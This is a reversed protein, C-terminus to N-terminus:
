HEGPVVSSDDLLPVWTQLLKYLQEHSKNVTDIVMEVTTPQIRDLPYCVNSVISLAAVKLGIHRAALVEPVTSMGVLDAGIIRCFNYEAPTELNPGPLAIYVGQHLKINLQDAALIAANRWSPEYANMMDPFRPGFRPDNPGNLPNPIQNIHDRLLVLDGGEYEPNLGGAANTFIIGECGLLSMTRVPHVIQHMPLGEYYHSRGALCVIPVGGIRGLILAGQHSQVSSAAFHPIDGYPITSVVEMFDLDGGSGTGLTLAYRPLFPLATRLWGAAESANQYADIKM